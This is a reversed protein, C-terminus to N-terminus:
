RDLGKFIGKLFTAISTITIGVILMTEAGALHFLKFLVSLGLIMVSIYNIPKLLRVDKQVLYNKVLLHFSVYLYMVFFIILPMYEYGGGIDFVNFLVALVMVVLPYIIRDDKPNVFSSYATYSAIHLWFIGRSFDSTLPWNLLKFLYAMLMLSLSTYILTNITKKM